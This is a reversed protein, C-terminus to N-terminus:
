LRGTKALSKFAAADPDVAGLSKLAAQATTKAMVVDGTLAYTDCLNFWATADTGDLAIAKHYDAEAQAYQGETRYVNGENNWGLPDKPNLKIAANYYQIATGYDQNVFNAVGAQIQDNYNTAHAKAVAEFHQLHKTGEYPAAGELVATVRSGKGSSTGSSSGGSSGHSTPHPHSPGSAGLLGCGGLLVTLGAGVAAVGARHV